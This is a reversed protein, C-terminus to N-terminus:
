KPINDKDRKIIDMATEGNINKQMSLDTRRKLFEIYSDKVQKRM